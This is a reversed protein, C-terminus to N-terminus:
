NTFEITIEITNCIAVIQTDLVTVCQYSYAIGDTTIHIKTKYTTQLLILDNQQFPQNNNPIANIYLIAIVVSPNSVTHFSTSQITGNQVTQEAVWDSPYKLSYGYSSNSFSNWNCTDTNGSGGGGSTNGGGSEGSSVAGTQSGM